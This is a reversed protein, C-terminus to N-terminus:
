YYTMAGAKFTYSSIECRQNDFHLSFYIHKRGGGGGGVGGGGGSKCVRGDALFQTSDAARLAQTTAFPSRVSLSTCPCSQDMITQQTAATVVDIQRQCPEVQLSTDGQRNIAHLAIFDCPPRTHCPMYTGGNHWPDKSIAPGMPRGRAHVASRSLLLAM